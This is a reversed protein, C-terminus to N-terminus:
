ATQVDWPKMTEEEGAMLVGVAMLFACMDDIKDPSKKKDPAMNLNDDRRAILNSANWNLLPDGGHAVKGAIYYRELAQMPPHYSKFGQVFEMMPVGAEVLRNVLDSANWRDFAINQVDFNDMADLVCREIVGYDTVDGETVILYGAEVWGAYNITGAEKRRQVASEPVWRWAYTYLVGDILWVLRFATLDGTSALDLGGYCPYKKLWEM